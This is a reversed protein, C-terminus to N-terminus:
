GEDESEEEDERNADRLREEPPEHLVLDMIQQMDSVFIINVDKLIPKPVDALDRENLQPLIINKIQARRAAMIKERIGGVPLVRGRLSIEGTIAYESRVKAETFASIIAIALTVGASPGDKPIASEPLHIHIDFNEFDDHPVNLDDARARMYSLATQASEQMVEGLQGTLTLNGKGPLVAAEITMVDGGNSTWALGSVVGIQDENNARLETYDPAGLLKDLMNVKIRKSYRKGEAAQRALKRMIEAIRRDLNRVGAEFTYERVIMQLAAIEFKVGSLGHASLQRPILYNQAITLKDEEIYGPFEIVELRDELAPPLPYLENATTIFMVKSLDYPVDLYHDFFDKNQEPDLVELLAAAPDGHFDVGLKDIEDLMIVPNLTAARRLTQIIRGPMAGVYTRRHGRIEAEDRVGGLSVRAFERGLARAISKGLSTKGTGPPGLFCLIPTRMKDPALKRVAIHELVRDKVRTLGHHDQDLVRQANAIDLNDTTETNWPMSVLWDLYTHILGIEPAMPPMMALRSIEKMARQHAEPPLNAAEVRERFEEIERQFIDSDGLKNQIVRMQERLYADRQERELEQQVELEIQDEIELLTLEKGLLQLVMRMRDAPALTSLVQQKEDLTLTLTTALLDALEGPSQIERAYALIDGPIDTNLTVIRRFLTLAARMQAQVPATLEDPQDVVRVKGVIYPETQVIEILEVRRRGQAIANHHDDRQPIIRLAIETGYAFFKLPAPNGNLPKEPEIQTFLLVTTGAAIAADAAAQALQTTLTIPRVTGPYIVARTTPILPIEIVGHEDSTANPIDYLEGTNHTM